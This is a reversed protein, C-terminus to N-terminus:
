KVTNGKYPPVLKGLYKNVGLINLIRLYWYMINACYMVRGYQMTDPKFRLFVGILFFVVAAADCPNWMNYCWVVLKHNLGVPESSAIERIKECGFSCIYFIAVIEQWSPAPHMQVLVTYSFIMLFIVYSIQM